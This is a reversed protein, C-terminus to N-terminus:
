RALDQLLPHVGYWSDEGNPYRMLAGSAVLSMADPWQEASPLLNHTQQVQRMIEVQEKSLTTRYDNRLLAEAQEFAQDSVPLHKAQLLTLGTLRLLDRFLGGSQLLLRDVHPGLLRELDGGPARRTLVQRMADLGARDPNGAKDAVRVNLVDQRVALIPAQVYFPVTYVVHVGPLQLDEALESFSREVSERVQNFAEARGRFHDISDVIFVVGHDVDIGRTCDSFFQHFEERFKRRNQTFADKAKKAFSKDDRVVGKLEARVPGVGVEATIDVDIRIRRLFDRFRRILGDDEAAGLGTAFGAALAVPFVAVELPLETNAYDAIDMYATTFGRARLEDRLRLLESTKGSGRFGSLLQVSENPSFEIADRMRQVLDLQQLAPLEYIPVYYNAQRDDLAQRQDVAVYFEKRYDRDTLPM